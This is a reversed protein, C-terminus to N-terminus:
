PVGPGATPVRLEVVTGGNEGTTVDLSGGVSRARERMIAVGFHGDGPRPLEGPLGVGADSITVILGDSRATMRITAADIQAHRQVNALAENLVRVVATLAPGSLRCAPVPRELTVALGRRQFQECL